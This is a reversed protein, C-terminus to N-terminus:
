KSLVLFKVTTNVSDDHQAVYEIFERMIAQASQGRTYLQFFEDFTTECHDGGLQILQLKGEAAIYSRATLDAAITYSAMQGAENVGTILFTGSFKPANPLNLIALVADAVTNSPMEGIGVVNNRLIRLVDSALELIGTFGVCVLDNVMEAKKVHENVISGNRRARGDYAVYSKSPTLINLVISM